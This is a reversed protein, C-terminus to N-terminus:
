KGIFGEFFKSESDQMRHGQGFYFQEFFTLKKDVNPMVGSWNSPREV